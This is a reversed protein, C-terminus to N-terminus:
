KLIKRNEKFKDLFERNTQSGKNKSLCWERVNKYESASFSWVQQCTSKDKLNNSLVNTLIPKLPEQRWKSNALLTEFYRSSIFRIRGENKRIQDVVNVTLTYTGTAGASDTVTYKVVYGSGVANTNGDEDVPVNNDTVVINASVDGDEADNANVYSLPDFFTGVPITIEGTDVWNGESDTFHPATNKWQAYFTFTESAGTTWSSDFMGSFQDKYLYKSYGNSSIEEGTVWGVNAVLWTSDSNRKAHWGTFSYGDRKFQNEELTFTENFAVEQTSMSGSTAGNGDYEIHSDAAWQAYLNVSVVGSDSVGLRSAMNSYSTFNDQQHILTGGDPKTGWYGTGTYGARSMPISASEVYNHLNDPFSSQPTAVWQYVMVNKDAGVTNFAGGFASTAYNSYYNVYLISPTFSSGDSDEGYNNYAYFHTIYTGTEGNHSSFPVYLKWNYTTGGINNTSATADYWILDDQDGKQTWTPIKLSDADNTKVYVTFGSTGDQKYTWSVVEPPSGVINEGYLIGVGYGSTIITKFPTKYTSLAPAAAFLGYGNEARLSNPWDRNTYYSINAWSTASSSSAVYNNEGYIYAGYAAIETVTFVCNEGNLKVAFIPEVLVSWGNADCTDVSIGWGVNSFLTNVNAKSCWTEIGTTLEPLSLGLNTDYYCNATSTTTAFSAFSYASKLLSKSYKVTLKARNIHSSNTAYRFVDVPGKQVAGSSNVVSFRYGSAKASDLYGVEFAGPSNESGVGGSSAAGDWTLASVSNAGLCIVLLVILLPKLLVTIKKSM